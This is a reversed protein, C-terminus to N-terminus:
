GAVGCLGAESKSRFSYHPYFEEYAYDFGEPWYMGSRTDILYNGRYEGRAIRFLMTVLRDVDEFTNYCGFSARVLGPLNTRDGGLIEQTIKDAEDPDVRMLRKVYPHACFCGNRVGIGGEASLIAAVKAHPVGEIAFCVVGVKGALAEADQPGFLSLGPVELM